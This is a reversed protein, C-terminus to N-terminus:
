GWGVGGWWGARTEDCVKFTLLTKLFHPDNLLTKRAPEWYDMRASVGDVATVKVPTVKLMIAVAEVALKVGAPPKLMVRVVAIDAPTITKLAEIAAELDPMASALDAECELKIRHADMAKRECAAQEVETLRRTEDVKTQGRVAGACLVVGVPAVSCECGARVRAAGAFSSDAATPALCARRGRQPSAPRVDCRRGEGWGGGGPWAGRRDCRGAPVRERWVLVSLDMSRMSGMSGGVQEAQIGQLIGLTEARNKDLTPQLSQLEAQMSLTLEEATYIAKVGQGYRRQLQTVAQRESTLMGAYTSLLRLFLAPTVVYNRGLDSAFARATAEAQPNPCVFSRACVCACARSSAQVLCSTCPPPDKQMGVDMGVGEGMLRFVGFSEWVYGSAALCPVAVVWGAGGKGEGGGGGGPLLTHGVRRRGGVQAHFHVCAAVAMPLAGGDLAVEETLVTTAVQALADTPWPHFWDIYCCTILAPFARLRDRPV